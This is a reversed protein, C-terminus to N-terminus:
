RIPKDNADKLLGNFPIKREQAPLGLCLVVCMLLSFLRKM